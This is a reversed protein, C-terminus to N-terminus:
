LLKVVEKAVIRGLMKYSLYTAALSVVVVGGLVIYAKITNRTDDM